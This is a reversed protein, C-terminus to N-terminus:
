ENKTNTQPHAKAFKYVLGSQYCTICLTKGSEDTDAHESCFVDDCEDCQLWLWTDPNKPDDKFLPKISKGCEECQQNATLFPKTIGDIPDVNFAVNMYKIYIM